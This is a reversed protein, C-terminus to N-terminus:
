YLYHETQWYQFSSELRVLVQDKLKDLPTVVEVKDLPFITRRETGNDASGGQDFKIFNQKLQQM